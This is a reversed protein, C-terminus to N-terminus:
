RKHQIEDGPMCIEQYKLRDKWNFHAASLTVYYVYIFIASKKAKYTVNWQRLNENRGTANLHHSYLSM